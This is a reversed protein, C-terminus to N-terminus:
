IPTPLAEALDPWPEMIPMWHTPKPVRCPLSMIRIVAIKIIVALRARIRAEAAPLLFIWIVMMIMTVGPVVM